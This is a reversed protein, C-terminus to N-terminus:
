ILAEIEEDTEKVLIRLIGFDFDEPLAEFKCQIIDVEVEQSLIENYINIEKQREDLADKYGEALKNIQDQGKQKEEDSHFSKITGDESIDAVTKVIEFKKQEFEKFKEVGTERAKLLDSAIPQLSALTRTVAFNFRKDFKTLDPYKNKLFYTMGFVKENTMKTKM